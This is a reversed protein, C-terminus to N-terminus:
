YERKLQGKLFTAASLYTLFLTGDESAVVVVEAAAAFRGVRNSSPPPPCRGTRNGPFMTFPARESGAHM